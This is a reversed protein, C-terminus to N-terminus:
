RPPHGPALCLLALPGHGIDECLLLTRVMRVTVAPKGCITARKQEDCVLYGCRESSKVTLVSEPAPTPAPPKRRKM